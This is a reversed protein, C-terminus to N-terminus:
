GVRQRAVIRDGDIMHTPTAYRPSIGKGIARGTVSAIRVAVKAFLIESAHDGRERSLRMLKRATQYALEHDDSTRLLSIAEADILRQRRRFLGIVPLRDLLANTM